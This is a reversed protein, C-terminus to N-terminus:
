NNRHWCVHLTVWYQLTVSYSCHCCTELIDSLISLDTITMNLSMFLFSLDAFLSDEAIYLCWLWQHLMAFFQTSTKKEFYTLIDSQWVASCLLMSIVLSDNCFTGLGFIFFIMLCNAYYIERLFLILMWILCNKIFNVILTQRGVEYGTHWQYQYWSLNQDRMTLPHYLNVTFSSTARPIFPHVSMCTCARMGVCLIIYSNSSLTKVAQM